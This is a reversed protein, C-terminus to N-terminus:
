LCPYQAAGIPAYDSKLNRVSRKMRDIEALLAMYDDASIRGEIREIMEGGDDIEGRWTRCITPEIRDKIARLEADTM